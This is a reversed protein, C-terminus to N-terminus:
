IGLHADQAAIEVWDRRGHSAVLNPNPRADPNPNPRADPNPNPIPNPNPNPDPNPNPIPTPIPTPNPHPWQPSRPWRLHGRAAALEVGVELGSGRVGLM